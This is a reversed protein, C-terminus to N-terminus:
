SLFLQFLKTSAVPLGPTSTLKLYLFIGFGIILLVAGAILVRNYWIEFRSNTTTKKRAKEKERRSPLSDFTIEVENKEEAVAEVEKTNGQVSPVPDKQKELPETKDIVEAQIQRMRRTNKVANTYYPHGQVYQNMRSRRTYLTSSETNSVTGRRPIQAMSINEGVLKAYTKVYARAYIINPLRDWEGKELAIIYKIEINTRRSVDALTMGMAERAQRLRQGIEKSLFFM